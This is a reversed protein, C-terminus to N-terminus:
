FSVRKQIEKFYRWVEESSLSFISRKEKKEDGMRLIQFILGDKFDEIEDDNLLEMKKIIKEVAEVFLSKTSFAKELIRSVKQFEKKEKKLESIVGAISRSPLASFSCPPLSLLNGPSLSKIEKKIIRLIYKEIKEKDFFGFKQVFYFCELAEKTKGLDNLIEGKILLYGLIVKITKPPLNKIKELNKESLNFKKLEEKLAQSAFMLALNNEGNSCYIASKYILVKPLFEELKEDEKIIKQLNDFIKEAMKLDDQHFKIEGLSVLAEIKLTLELPEKLLENLIEEGKKFEELQLLCEAERLRAKFNKPDFRFAKLFNERAEKYKEFFFLSEGINFFLKSALERWVKFKPKSRIRELGKKELIHLCEKFYKEGEQIEKPNWSRVGKNLFVVGLDLFIVLKQFNSLGPIELSEKLIKEAEEYKGVAIFKEAEEILSIFRKNKRKGM